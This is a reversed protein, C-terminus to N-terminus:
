RWCDAVSGASGRENNSKLTLTGCEDSAQGGTPTATLTYAVGGGGSTNLTINYRGRDTTQLPAPLATPYRGTATSAREMWQAASLLAVRAEARYGRKMYRQYAPVAVSTLIGLVAIVIMLELLSFGQQRRAGRVPPCQKESM